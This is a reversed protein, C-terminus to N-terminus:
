KTSTPLGTAALERYGGNTVSYVLKFGKQQMITAARGSRGGVACYVVVPKNKDLTGLKQEFTPDNVDIHKAMALHGASWETPTRVDVVQIKTKEKDILKKADAATVLKPQAVAAVVSALGIVLISTIRTIM